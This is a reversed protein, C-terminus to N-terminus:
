KDIWSEVAMQQVKAAKETEQDNVCDIPSKSPADARRLAAVKVCSLMFFLHVCADM